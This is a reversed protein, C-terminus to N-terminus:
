TDNPITLYHVIFNLLLTAGRRRSAYAVHAPVSPPPSREEPPRPEFRSAFPSEAPYQFTELPHPNYFEQRRREKDKHKDLINIETTPSNKVLSEPFGVPFGQTVEIESEFRPGVGLAGIVGGDAAVVPPYFRGQMRQVSSCGESESGSLRRGKQRRLTIESGFGRESGLAVGRSPSSDPDDMESGTGLIRRHQLVSQHEEAFDEHDAPRQGRTAQDPWHISSPPTEM